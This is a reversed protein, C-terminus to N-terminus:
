TTRVAGFIFKSQHEPVKQQCYSNTLYQLRVTVHGEVRLGGIVEGRLALLGNLRVLLLNLLQRLVPLPSCLHTVPTINYIYIVTKADHVEV